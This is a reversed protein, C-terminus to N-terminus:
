YRIGQKRGWLLWFLPGIFPFAFILLTWIAKGGSTLSPDDIVSVLAWIFFVISAISLVGLGILLFFSVYSSM